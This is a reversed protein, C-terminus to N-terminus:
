FREMEKQLCRLIRKIVAERETIREWTKNEKEGVVKLWAPVRKTIVKELANIKKKAWASGLLQSKRASEDNSRISQVLYQIINYSTLDIEKNDDLIVARIKKEKLGALTMLTVLAEERSFRDMNEFLFYSGPPIEGLEVAAIFEGLKGKIRNAGTFGSVGDDFYINQELFDLGNRECYNKAKKLQRDYSDGEKQESSSYRIYTYVVAM